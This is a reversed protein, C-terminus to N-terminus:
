NPESPGKVIPLGIGHDMTGDEEAKQRPICHPWGSCAGTNYRGPQSPSVRLTQVLVFAEKRLNSQGPTTHCRLFYSICLGPAAEPYSHSSVVEAVMSAARCVKIPSFDQKTKGLLILFLFLSLSATYLFVTRQWATESVTVRQLVKFVPFLFHARMGKLASGMKEGTGWLNCSSELPCVVDSTGLRM